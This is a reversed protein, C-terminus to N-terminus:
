DTCVQSDIVIVNRFKLDLDPTQLQCYLDNNYPKVCKETKLTNTTNDYGGLIYLYNNRTSVSHGYRASILRGTFSWTMTKLSFKMVRNTIPLGGLVLFGDNHTLVAASYIGETRPYPPITM